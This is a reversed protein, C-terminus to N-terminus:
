VLRRLEDPDLPKVLHFDFGAEFAARRDHPQGYGTLAILRMAAGAPSGRLRRAVQYGDMGPLGIDIVAVDPPHDLARNRRDLPELHLIAHREERAGEPWVHFDALGQARMWAVVAEEEDPSLRM